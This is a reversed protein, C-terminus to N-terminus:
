FQLIGLLFCPFLEKRQGQCNNKSMIVGFTCVIFVFVFLYFLMFNFLKEAFPIILSILICGISFYEGVLYRM